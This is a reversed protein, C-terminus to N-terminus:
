LLSQRQRDTRLVLRLKPSPPTHFASKQILCHLGFMHPIDRRDRSPLLFTLLSWGNGSRHKGRPMGRESKPNWGRDRAGRGGVPSPTDPTSLSSRLEPYKFQASFSGPTTSVSLRRRLACSLPWLCLPGQCSRFCLGPRKKKKKGRCRYNQMEVKMGPWLSIM